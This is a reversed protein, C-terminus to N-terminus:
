SAEEVAREHINADFLVDDKPEPATDGILRKKKRGTPEKMSAAEDATPWTEDENWPLPPNEGNVYANIWDITFKATVHSMTRFEGLISFYITDEPANKMQAMKVADEVEQQTKYSYVLAYFARMYPYNHTNKM